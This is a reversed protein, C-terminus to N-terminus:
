VNFKGPVPRSFGEGYAVQGQGIVIMAKPDIQLVYNRLTNSQSRLVTVFLMHRKQGSYMGRGDWGTVGRQMRYLIVDAVDQPRDTIIIATRIMSPGEMIYESAFGETFLAIMSYLASEWGLFIGALIVVLINSLMYTNGLSLGLRVQLIRAIASSGGFTAGTRYVMGGGIGSIIGAFIANLLLDDSVGTTPFYPTLVDIFMSYLVLTYITWMLNRIGGLMRFALYMIPINGLITMLGIPTGIVKNLIVAIGVLGVPAVNAPAFFVLVAIAGIFPGITCLLFRTLLM